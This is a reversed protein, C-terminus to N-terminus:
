TGAMEIQCPSLLEGVLFEVLHLLAEVGEIAVAHFQSGLHSRCVLGYAANRMKVSTVGDEAFDNFSQIYQLFDQLSGSIVVVPRYIVLAYKLRVYNLILFSFM